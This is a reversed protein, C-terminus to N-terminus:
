SRRAQIQPRVQTRLHYEATAQEAVPQGLLEKALRAVDDCTPGAVGKVHLQLEGTDADITFHIEPM